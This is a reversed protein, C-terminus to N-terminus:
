RAPVPLLAALGARARAALKRSKREGNGFAYRAIASTIVGLTIPAMVLLGHGEQYGPNARLFFQVSPQECREWYARDSRSDITQWGTQRVLANGPAAREYGFGSGLEAMIERVEAPTEAGQRPWVDDVHRAILRYSSPHILLGFFYLPRLPHALRYRLVREAVFGTVLNAGRHERLTGTQGRVIAATKGGLEREYVHLAVYGGLAGGEDRYLQIWTQAARADFVCKEFSAREVGRFIRRNLDYLDDALQKKATADLAAPVVLEAAILKSM